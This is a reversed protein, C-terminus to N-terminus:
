IPMSFLKPNHNDLLLAFFSQNVTKKYLTNTKIMIPSNLMTYNQFGAKYETKQDIQVEKGEFDHLAKDAIIARHDYVFEDDDLKCYSLTFLEMNKPLVFKLLTFTHHPQTACIKIPRGNPVFITKSSRHDFVNVDIEAADKIYKELKEPIEKDKVTKRFNPLAITDIKDDKLKFFGVIERGNWIQYAYGNEKIYLEGHRQLKDM